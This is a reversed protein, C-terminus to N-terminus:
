PIRTDLGRPIEKKFDYFPLSVIECSAMKGAETKVELNQGVWDGNEYFRVYGIGCDLTPSWTAGTIHGVQRDNGMVEFGYGPTGAQCKLGLLRMERNVTQLAERGIYGEKDLDIFSGLGAEFPNM